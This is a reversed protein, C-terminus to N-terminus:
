NTYNENLLRVDRCVVVSIRCQLNTCVVDFETGVTAVSACRKRRSVCFDRTRFIVGACRCHLTCTSRKVFMVIKYLVTTTTSNNVFTGVYHKTAPHSFPLGLPWDDVYLSLVSPTSLRCLLNLHRVVFCFEMWQFCITSYSLSCNRDLGSKLASNLM